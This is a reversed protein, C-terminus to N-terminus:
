RLLLNKALVKGELTSGDPDLAGARLSIGGNGFCGSSHGRSARLMRVAAHHLTPQKLVSLKITEGKVVGKLCSDQFHMESIRNVPEQTSERFQRHLKCLVSSAVWPCHPHPDRRHMARHPYCAPYWSTNGNLSPRHEASSPWIRPFQLAADVTCAVPCTLVSSLMQYVALPQRALLSLGLWSIAVEGSGSHTHPGPTHHGSVRRTGVKAPCSAM